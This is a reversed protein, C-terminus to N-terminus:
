QRDAIDVHGGLKQRDQGICEATCLPHQTGFPEGVLANEDVEHMVLDHDRIRAALPGLTTEHGYRKVGHAARQDEDLCLDSPM